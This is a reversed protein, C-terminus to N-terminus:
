PQTPQKFCKRFTLVLQPNWKADVGKNQMTTSIKKCCTGSATENKTSATRKVEKTHARDNAQALCNNKFAASTNIQM